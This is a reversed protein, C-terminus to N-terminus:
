GTIDPWLDRWDPNKSEILAIKWARLWRKLSKERQIAARIDDTTEFWVLRHLRYRRTFGDVADTRHAHVRRLLDATVGVYLVGRPRNTM